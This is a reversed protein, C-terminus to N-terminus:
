RVPTHSDPLLDISDPQRADRWWRGKSSVVADAAPPAPQKVHTLFPRAASSTQDAVAAVGRGQTPCPHLVAVIRMTSSSAMRAIPKLLRHAFGTVMNESRNRLDVARKIQERLAPGSAARSINAQAIALHRPRRDRQRHARPTPMGNARIVPYVDSDSSARKAPQTTSCLGNEVGDGYGLDLAQEVANRGSLSLSRGGFGVGTRLSWRRPDEEPCQHRANRGAVDSHWAADHRSSLAEARMKAILPAEDGHEEILAKATQYIDLQSTMSLWEDGHAWSKQTFRNASSPARGNFV